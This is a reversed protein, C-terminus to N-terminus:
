WTFCTIELCTEYHGEFCNFKVTFFHWTTQFQWLIDVFRFIVNLLQNQKCKNDTSIHVTLNGLLQRILHSAANDVSVVDCALRGRADRQNISAGLARLLCVYVPRANHKVAVHYFSTFGPSPGGIRGWSTGDPDAGARFLSKFCDLHDYVLAIYSPTTDCTGVRLQPTDPDAGFRLLEQLKCIYSQIVLQSYM